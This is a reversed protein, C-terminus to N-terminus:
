QQKKSRWIVVGRFLFLGSVLGYSSCVLAIFVIDNAVPLQRAFTVGVGYKICFISMMLMLPAWSGPITYTSEKESYSVGLPRPLLWSMVGAAALGSLWWILSESDQLGFASVVGYISLGIMCIPLIAIKFRSVERDRSQTCGLYLLVFFLVFVWKPTGQLIEVIM